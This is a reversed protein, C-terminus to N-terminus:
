PTTAPPPVAAVAEAADAQLESHATALSAVADDLTQRDAASLSQAGGLAAVLNDLGLKIASQDSAINVAVDHLATVEASLDTMLNEEQYAGRYLATTNRNLATTNAQLADILNM